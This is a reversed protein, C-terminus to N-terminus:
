FVLAAAGLIGANKQQLSSILFPVQNNYVFLKNDNMYKHTPTLLINGLNSLGGFFVIAEPSTFALTNALFLGLIEATYEIVELALPQQQQAAALLVRTNLYPELNRSAAFQRVTTMVGTASVYTELCGSRGCGCARGGPKVIIHGLEGAMGDHGYILQGNAVIGSGVGTGLTIMVFDKLDKAVGFKMEGYTAANADNTVITHLSLEDILMQRLPIHEHWPLNAARDISGTHVNANPAGVGIGNITEKGYAEILPRIKNCIATVFDNVSEYDKTNLRRKELLEGDYDVLGIVTNTGGIDIGIAYKKEDM